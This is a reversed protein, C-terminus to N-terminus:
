FILKEPNFNCFHFIYKRYKDFHESNRFNTPQRNKRM